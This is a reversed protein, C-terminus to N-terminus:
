PKLEEIAAHSRMTLCGTGNDYLRCVERKRVKYKADRGKVNIGMRPQIVTGVIVAM